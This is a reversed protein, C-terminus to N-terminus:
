KKDQALHIEFVSEENPVEIDQKYLKGEGYMKLFEQWKDEIKSNVTLLYGSESLKKWLALAGGGVNNDSRIGSFGNRGALALVEEYLKMGLGKNRYGDNLAAFRIKFFKEQAGKGPYNFQIQGIRNKMEDLLLIQKEAYPWDTNDQELSCSFRSADLTAEEKERFIKEPKPTINFKPSEQDM